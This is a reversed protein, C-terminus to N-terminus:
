SFAPCSRHRQEDHSDWLGMCGLISGDPQRCASFEFGGGFKDQWEGQLQIRDPLLRIQFVVHGGKDKIELSDDTYNWDQATGDYTTWHNRIIQAIETGSGDRIPTTIEIGDDGFEIKIGADPVKGALDFNSQNL